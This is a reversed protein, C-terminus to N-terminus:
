KPMNIGYSAMINILYDLKQEIMINEQRLVHNEITLQNILDAKKKRCREAALRNRERKDLNRDSSLCSADMTPSYNPSIGLAPSFAGAGSLSPSYGREKAGNMFYSTAQLLQQQQYAYYSLGRHRTTPLSQSITSALSRPSHAMSSNEMNSSFYTSNLSPSTSAHYQKQPYYQDSEMRTFSDVPSKPTMIHRLGEERSHNTFEQYKLENSFTPSGQKQLSANLLPQSLVGLLSPQYASAKPPFHGQSKQFNMVSSNSDEDKLDLTFDEFFAGSNSDMMDTML